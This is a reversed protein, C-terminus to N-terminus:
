GKGEDASEAEEDAPRGMRNLLLEDNANRIVAGRFASKVMEMVDAPWVPPPLQAYAFHVKYLEKKQDAPFRAWGKSGAAVARGVCSLASRSYPNLIGAANELLIPWLYFRGFKDSFPVLRALRCIDPFLKAVTPVVAHTYEKRQKEEEEPVLLYLDQRWTPHLFVYRMRGPKQLAVAITEEPEAVVEAAPTVKLENFDFDDEILPKPVVVLKEAPVLREFDFDDPIVVPHGNGKRNQTIKSTNPM